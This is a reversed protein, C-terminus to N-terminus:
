DSLKPFHYLQIANAIIIMKIDDDNIYKKFTENFYEKSINKNMKEITNIKSYKNNIKILRMFIFNHLNKLKFDDIGDILIYYPIPSINYKTFLIDLFDFHYKNYTDKTKINMPEVNFISVM